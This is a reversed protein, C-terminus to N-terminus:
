AHYVSVRGIKVDTGEPVPRVPVFVVDLDGENWRGEGQLRQVLETIEIVITLGSGGHTADASSEEGIGFLPLVGALNEEHDEPSEGDPVNVYVKYNGPPGKGTINEINLFVRKTTDDGVSALINEASAAIPVRASTADSGLTISGDTAGALKAPPRPGTDAVPAEEVGALISPGVAPFPDSVDDYKYGNKVTSVMSASRFKIAVGNEDHIDFPFDRWSSSTPDGTSTSRARWVEWLRDINCHHLWFLPDLGATNFGGMLGGVAGHIANHPVSECAGGVGGGHNFGTQPGGFGPSGGGSTGIFKTRKLCELSTESPDIGANGSTGGNRGSVFLPNPQGGATTPQRFAPPILKTNPSTGASSYNWYPLAWDKPGGLKVIAALCIREFYILYGRHWPIFYWSSHQCQNWFKTQNAQSPAPDNPRPMTDPNAPNQQPPYGHIAAQYRFSTPDALKRKRMEAIARGYWELTKDTSALKYVNKRVRPPTSAM